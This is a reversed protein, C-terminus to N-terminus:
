QKSLYRATFDILPRIRMLKCTSQAVQGSKVKEEKEFASGIENFQESNEELELYTKWVREGNEMMASGQEFSQFASNSRFEGLHMATCTSYDTGIFLTFADLEYLRALPSGEGFAFDISHDHTIFSAHRGWASFSSSPHSSRMVGPFTRFAEAIRGMGITPTIDSLYAPMLYRIGPWWGEPVPPNKWYKPDTNHTTQAPMVITGSDSVAAMLAQIVAVEGGAIWGLSRLSSHVIVTAGPTIGLAHFDRQLTETTILSKTQKMLYRDTM